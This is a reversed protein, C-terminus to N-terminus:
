LDAADHCDGVGDGSGVLVVGLLCVAPRSLRRGSRRHGRRIHIWTSVGAPFVGSNVLPPGIGLLLVM